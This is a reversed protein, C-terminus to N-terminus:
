KKKLRSCTDLVLTSLTKQFKVLEGRALIPDGPNCRPALKAPFDKIARAIPSVAHAIKDNVEPMAILEQEMQKRQLEKLLADEQAIKLKAEETAKRTNTHQKTLADFYVKVPHEIGRGMDAGADTLAKVIRARDVGFDLAAQRVSLLTKSPM